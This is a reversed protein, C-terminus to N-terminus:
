PEDSTLDLHLIAEKVAEKAAENGTAGMHDPVWCFVVSIGSKKLSSVQCSRIFHLRGM